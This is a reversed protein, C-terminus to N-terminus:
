RLQQQNLDGYNEWKLQKRAKDYPQSELVRGQTARKEAEQELAPIKLESAARRSTEATKNLLQAAETKKGQDALKIADESALTSLQTYYASFTPRDISEEVATRADALELTRRSSESVQRKEVPDWYTLEVTALERDSGLQAPDIEAEFMVYKEQGGYVQNLKTMIRSGYIEADRGLVRTPRVGPRCTVAISVSQAVVSLIDGFERQFIQALDTAREAFVHNGDSRQALQTMLDENYGLGLGITSVAVGDKRLSAGLDGLQAPSSPGVNALGDSLLVIRNVRNPERFKAIEAAGTSVGAFLGTNGGIGIKRISEIVWEKATLKTAPVLVQATDDYTIVSVIDDASLMSVATIAASRAQEIKEGSMSGSRDIVIAVNAKPRATPAPLAVGELSVKVPITTRETRLVTGYGPTLSLRVPAAFATGPVCPVAGWALVAAPLARACISFLRKM